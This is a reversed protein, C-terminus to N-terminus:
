GRWPGRAPAPKFTLATAYSEWADKLKGSRIGNAIQHCGGMYHAEDASAVMGSACLYYVHLAAMLAIMCLLVPFGRREWRREAEGTFAPDPEKGRASGSAQAPQDGSAFM